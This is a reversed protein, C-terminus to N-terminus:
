FLECREAPNLRTGKDCEFADSFLKVHRLTPSCPDANDDASQAGPCRVFCWTAFFLQKSSFFSLDHLRTEDEKDAASFVDVLYSLAFLEELLSNAAFPSPLAADDQLCDRLATLFKRLEDPANSNPGVLATLLIRASAQAVHSGLAGYKIATTVAADYMPFTLAAPLLVFDHLKPMTEFLHAHYLTEPLLSRQPPKDARQLARLAWRWNLAFVDGFDPLGLLPAQAHQSNVRAYDLIGFVHDVFSWDSFAAVSTAFRSDMSLLRTFTERVSLVLARVDQRARAPFVVSNYSAFVIDGLAVYSPVICFSNRHFQEEEETGSDSHKLTAHAFYAAFRVAYWSVLLHAEREGHEQWLRAFTRVFLPHTSRFSVSIGTPTHHAITANWEGPSPYLAEEKLSGPHRHVSAKTLDDLMDEELHAIDAFTVLPHGVMDDNSRFTERLLNFVKHRDPTSLNLNNIFFFSLSPKLSIVASQLGTREVEIDIISSWGLNLALYAITDLVSPNAPSVPWLVGAEVLWMKVLRTDDHGSTPLQTCSRYFAAVQQLANQGSPRFRNHRRYRCFYWYLACAVLLTGILVSPVIWVVAGTAIGAKGKEEDPQSTTSPAETSEGTYMELVLYGQSITQAVKGGACRLVYRRTGEKTCNCLGSPFTTSRKFTSLACTSLLQAAHEIDASLHTCHDMTNDNDELVDRHREFKVVYRFERGPVCQEADRNWLLPFPCACREANGEIMCQSLPGACERMKEESCTESCRGDQDLANGYCKCQFKSDQFICQRGDKACEKVEKDSCREKKKCSWGDASREEGDLCQCTYNSTGENDAKCGHKCVQEALGASCVNTCTSTENSWITGPKCNPRSDHSGNCKGAEWQQCCRWDERLKPNLCIEECTINPFLCAITYCTKATANFYHYKGCECAFSQVSSRASYNASGCFDEVSKCM